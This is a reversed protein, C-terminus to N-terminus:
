GGQVIVRKVARSVVAQAAALMAIAWMAQGALAPLLDLGDLRGVFIDSPVQIMSAFPLALLIPQAWEPFFRVPVVFGGLFLLLASAVAGLGRADTTWFASLNLLFRWCFSITVALTLSVALAAYTGLHTPWTLGGHVTLQGMILSPFGRFVLFYVARGYDRALWYGLYSFPRALDTVVDGSRITVEVEWWSWLYLVMILAQTAWTYSAAQQLQYGGISQAQSFVALFLATRLYGFFANTLLGAINATRYVLQRRFAMRAIAWYLM